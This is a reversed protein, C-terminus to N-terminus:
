LSGSLVRSASVASPKTLVPSAPKKSGSPWSLITSRALSTPRSASPCNNAGLYMSFLSLNKESMRSATAIPSPRSNTATMSLMSSAETPLQASRM